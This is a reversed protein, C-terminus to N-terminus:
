SSSASDTNRSNYGATAALKPLMDYHALELQTGTVVDNMLEVRHDLNYKIARAMAQEMTIPALVPEIDGFMLAKDTAIRDKMELVTLADPSVACAVLLLAAGSFLCTKFLNRSAPTVCCEAISSSLM